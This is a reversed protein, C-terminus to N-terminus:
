DTVTTMATGAILSFVSFCLIIIAVSTFIFLCVFLCVVVADIDNQARGATLYHHMNFFNNKQDHPDWLLFKLIRHNSIKQEDDPLLFVYIYVHKKLFFSQLDIVNM